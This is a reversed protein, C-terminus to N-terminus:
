QVQGAQPCAVGALRGAEDRRGVDDSAPLGYGRRLDVLVAAADRSERDDIRAAAIELRRLDTEGAATAAPGRGGRAHIETSDDERFAATAVYSRGGDGQSATTSLTGHGLGSQLDFRQSEGIGLSIREEGILAGKLLIAGRQDEVPGSWLGGIWFGFEAERVRSRPGQLVARAGIKRGEGSERVPHLVVRVARPRHIHEVTGLKAKGDQGDAAREIQALARDQTLEFEGRHRIGNIQSAIPFDVHGAVRRILGGHKAEDVGLAGTWAIDFITGPDRDAVALVGGGEVDYAAHDFDFVARFSLEFDFGARHQSEDGIVVTGRIVVSGALDADGIGPVNQDLTEQAELTVRRGKGPDVVRALERDPAVPRAHFVHGVAGSGRTPIIGKLKGRM